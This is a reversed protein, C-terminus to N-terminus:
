HHAGSIRKKLAHGSPQEEIITHLQAILGTVNGLQDIDAYLSDEINRVARERDKGAATLTLRIQRRDKVATTRDVLGADVLRDVIRSPNTGSDCVLMQGVGTLTLAPNEGLIRLVEAQAPTLSLPKLEATLRRNGERQAALILYRVQEAERV